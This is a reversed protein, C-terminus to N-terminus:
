GPIRCEADIREDECSFVQSRGDRSEKDILSWIGKIKLSVVRREVSGTTFIDSESVLLTEFTEM